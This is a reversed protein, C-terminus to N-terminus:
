PLLERALEAGARIAAVGAAGAALCASANAACVGGLALVPVGHGAAARLPETGLPAGKGPSAFIPSLVCFDADDRVEAPAHISVGVRLPGLARVQAPSLGGRPLQVGEAGAALAVDARDNVYVRYGRAVWGRAAAYVAAGTASKDRIQIALEPHPGRLGTGSAGASCDVICYVRVNRWCAM